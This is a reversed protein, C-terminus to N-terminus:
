SSSSDGDVSRRNAIRKAIREVQDDNFSEIKKGGSTIDTAQLPKGIFQNILYQAEKGDVLAREVMNKVILEVQEETIFSM